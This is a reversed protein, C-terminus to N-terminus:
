RRTILDQSIYLKRVLQRGVCSKGNYINLWTIKTLTCCCKYFDHLIIFQKMQNSKFIDINKISIPEEHQHFKEKEIEVDGFKIIKEM